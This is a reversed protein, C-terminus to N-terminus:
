LFFKGNFMEHFAYKSKGTPEIVWKSMMSFQKQAGRILTMIAEYTSMLNSAIGKKALVTPMTEVLRLECNPIKMTNAHTPPLRQNHSLHPSKQSRMEPIDRM